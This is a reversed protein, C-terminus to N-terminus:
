KKACLQGHQFDYCPQITFLKGGLISFNLMFRPSRLPGKRRFSRTSWLWSKNGRNDSSPDPGGRLTCRVLSKPSAMPLCRWRMDRM